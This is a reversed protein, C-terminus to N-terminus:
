PTSTGHLWEMGGEDRVAVNEAPRVNALVTTTLGVVLLAMTPAACACAACPGVQFFSSCIGRLGPICKM